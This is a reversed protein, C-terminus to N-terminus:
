FNTVRNERSNPTDITSLETIKDHEGIVQEALSLDAQLLSQTAREMAAGALGAQVTNQTTDLEFVSPTFGIAEIILFLTIYACSGLTVLWGGLTGALLVSLGFLPTLTYTGSKFIELLSILLLDLGISPLWAYVKRQPPPRKSLTAYILAMAGYLGLLALQPVLQQSHPPTIVLAGIALLAAVVVRAVLYGRWLRKFPTEIAEPRTHSM